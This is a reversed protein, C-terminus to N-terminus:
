QWSCHCLTMPVDEAVPTAEGDNGLSMLRVTYRGRHGSVSPYLDASLDALHLLVLNECSAQFFGNRAVVPEPRGGERVLKLLLSLGRAFPEVKDLWAAVDAQRVVASRQQWCALQPLDFPADGGAVTFRARLAMLLPDDRWGPPLRQQTLLWQRHTQLERGLENLQQADVGPMQEWRQLQEIARELDKILEAKVDGRDMVDLLDFLATFFPWDANDASKFLRRLLYDLRLYARFKESLPFEFQCDM